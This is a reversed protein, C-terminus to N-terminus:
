VYNNDIEGNDRTQSDATTNAFAHDDLVAVYGSCPSHVCYKGCVYVTCLVTVTNVHLCSM